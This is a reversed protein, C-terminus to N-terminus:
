AMLFGAVFGGAFGAGSAMFGESLVEKGAQMVIRADAEDIKGDKNLDLQSMFDEKIKPWNVQVYGKEQGYLTAVWLGGFAFAAVSSM